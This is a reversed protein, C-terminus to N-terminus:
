RRRRRILWAILRWGGLFVGLVVATVIIFSVQTTGGSIVRLAMGGALTLFWVIAGGRLGLGDDELLALVLWGVVTAALFPWATGLAGAIPNEAHSARGIIAFLLVLVLDIGVPLLRKM